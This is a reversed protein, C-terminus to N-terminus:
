TSDVSVPISALLDGNITKPIVFTIDFDEDFKTAYTSSVDVSTQTAAVSSFLVQESLFFASHDKSGFFTVYGTGSAIDQFPFSAIATDVTTFPTPIVM